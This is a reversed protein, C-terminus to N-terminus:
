NPENRNKTQKTKQHTTKKNTQKPNKNNQKAKPTVKKKKKGQKFITGLCFCSLM